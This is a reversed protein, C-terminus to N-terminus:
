PTALGTQMGESNRGIVFAFNGGATLSLAFNDELGQVYQPIQGNSTQLIHGEQDSLLTFTGGVKVDSFCQGQIKTPSLCGPTGWM